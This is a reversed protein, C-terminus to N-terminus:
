WKIRNSRLQELWKWKERNFNINSSLTRAIWTIGTIKYNTIEVEILKISKSRTGKIKHHCGTYVKNVRYHILIVHLLDSSLSYSNRSDRNSTQTIFENHANISKRFIQVHSFAYFAYLFTCFICFLSINNIRIHIPQLTNIM